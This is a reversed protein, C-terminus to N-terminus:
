RGRRRSAIGLAGLGFVLGLLSAPEPVTTVALDWGILDLARIDAASILTVVGNALTPDMLGITTGTLEDAKWHSAQNGDGTEGTSFAYENTLDDFVAAQGPRLERVATTFSAIDTPDSANNFRFLDLTTPPVVQPQGIVSEIYDVISIFGLAHGLEHAAVTEFDKTGMSVGDSNDFDFSFNSNFTITADVATGADADLMAANYGLAKLNAKTALILGGTSFGGPPVVASFQGSTPLFAVIGNSAENAADNVLNTRVDTYGKALVTSNASGIVNSAGINTLDANIEITVNDSFIAEWSDAARQFAALAAANGSLGSGANINIQLALAPNALTVALTGAAVAIVPLKFNM